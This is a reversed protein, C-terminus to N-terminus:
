HLFISFCVFRITNLFYYGKVTMMLTNPGTVAINMLYELELGSYQTQIEAIGAMLRGHAAYTYTKGVQFAYQDAM